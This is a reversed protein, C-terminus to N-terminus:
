IAESILENVRIIFQEDSCNMLGEVTESDLWYSVGGFPNLQLLMEDSVNFNNTQLCKNLSLNGIKRVTDM